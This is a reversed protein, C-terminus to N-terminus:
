ASVANRRTALANSHHFELRVGNRHQKGEGQSGRAEGCDGVDDSPNTPDHVVMRRERFVRAAISCDDGVPVADHGERSFGREAVTRLLGATEDFVMISARRAGVVGSVERVIIQAAEELSVTRGLIETIAYLLDIEEYRSALEESLLSRERAADLVIAILPLIHRAVDQAEAADTTDVELWFGHVDPVPVLWSTGDPGETLGTGAPAPPVAGPDGGAALRLRSGDSRWLRVPAGALAGLGELM